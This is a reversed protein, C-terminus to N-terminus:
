SILEREIGVLFTRSSRILMEPGLPLFPNLWRLELEAIAYFYTGSDAEQDGLAGALPDGTPTVVFVWYAGDRSGYKAFDTGLTAGGSTNVLPEPETVKFGLKLSTMEVDVYVGDNFLRLSIPNVDNQKLWLLPAPKETASAASIWGGQGNGRYVNGSDMDMLLAVADGQTSGAGECGFAFTVEASNGSGNTASFECDWAGPVLMRGTVHGTGADIAVGPPLNSATWSTPGYTAAPQFEFYQGVRFGNVNQLLSIVPIPM